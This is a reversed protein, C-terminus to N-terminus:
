RSTSYSRFHPVYSSLTMKLFYWASSAPCAESPVITVRAGGGQPALSSWARLIRQMERPPLPAHLHPPQISQQLCPIMLDSGVGGQASNPGSDTHM